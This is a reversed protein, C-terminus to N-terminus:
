TNQKEEMLNMELRTLISLFSIALSKLKYVNWRLDYIKKTIDDDIKSSQLHRKIHKYLGSKTKYSKSCNKCPYLNNDKLGKINAKNSQQQKDITMSKSIDM